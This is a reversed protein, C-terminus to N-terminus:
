AKSKQNPLRRLDGTLLEEAVLAIASAPGVLYSAIFTMPADGTAFAISGEVAAAAVGGKALLGMAKEVRRRIPHDELRGVM